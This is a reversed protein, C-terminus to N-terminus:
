DHPYMKKNYANMCHIIFMYEELFTELKYVFAEKPKKFRSVEELSTTISLTISGDKEIITKIQNAREKSVPSDFGPFYTENVIRSLETM